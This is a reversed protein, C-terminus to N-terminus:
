PSAQLTLNGRPGANPYCTCTHKSCCDSGNYGVTGQLPWLSTVDALVWIGLSHCLRIFEVADDLNQENITAELQMGGPMGSNLTGTVGRYAARSAMQLNRAQSFKSWGTYWGQVSLKTDGDGLLSGSGHDSVIQTPIREGAYLFKCTTTAVAIRAGQHGGVPVGTLAATANALTKAPIKSLDFPVKNTRGAQVKVASALTVNHHSSGDGIPLVITVELAGVLSRAVDTAVRVLMTAKDGTTFPYRSTAMTVLPFYEIGVSLREAWPNSYGEYSISDADEIPAVCAAMLADKGSRQPTPQAVRDRSRSIYRDAREGLANTALTYPRDPFVSLTARGGLPFVPCPCQVHTDNIITATSNVYDHILDWHWGCRSESLWCWLPMDALASFNSGTFSLM